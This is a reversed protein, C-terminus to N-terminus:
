HNVHVDSKTNATSETSNWKLITILTMSYLNNPSLDIPKDITLAEFSSHISFVLNTVQYTIYM